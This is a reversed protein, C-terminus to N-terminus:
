SNRGIAEVEYQKLDKVVDTPDFLITGGVRIYRVKRSSIWNELTRVNVGLM